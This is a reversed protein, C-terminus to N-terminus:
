CVGRAWKRREYSRRARECIKDRNKLYYRHNKVASEYGAQLIQEVILPNVRSLLACDEDSLRVFVVGMFSPHKRGARPNRPFAVRRANARLVGQVGLWALFSGFRLCLFELFFLRLTIFLTTSGM